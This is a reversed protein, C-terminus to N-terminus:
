ETKESHKSSQLEDEEKSDVKIEVCPRVRRKADEEAHKRKTEPRWSHFGIEGLHLTKIWHCNACRLACKVMEAKVQEDGANDKALTSVCNIKTLPNIHDFHFGVTNENTVKRQCDVCSGRAIKENNVLAYSNLRRMAKKSISKVRTVREEKKAKREKHTEIQHCFKCLFGKIHKMEEEMSRISRLNAINIKRGTKSVYKIWSNDHAFDLARVDDAFGCSMCKQGKRKNALWERLKDGELKACERCRPKLGSSQSPDVGFDDSKRVLGCPGSCKKESAIPKTNGVVRRNKQRENVCTRCRSNLRDPTVSNLPNFKDISLLLQCGLCKKTTPSANQPISKVESQINM